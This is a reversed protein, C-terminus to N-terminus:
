DSKKTDFSVDRRLIEYKQGKMIVARLAKKANYLADSVARPRKKLLAATQDVSLGDFYHLHLILRYDDLLEDLAKHLAIKREDQYMEQLIRDSSVSPGYDASLPETKHRNRKKVFNIALNKAISYLWTKFGASPSYRPKKVYLLVFVDESIEESSHYDGVFQNIFDTLGNRYRIVIRNFCSEDGELFGKYWEYGEDTM